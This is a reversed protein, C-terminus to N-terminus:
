AARPKRHVQGSQRFEANPEYILKDPAFGWQGCSVCQFAEIDEAVSMQECRPCRTFNDM